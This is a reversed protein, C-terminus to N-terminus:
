IGFATHGWQGNPIYQVSSYARYRYRRDNRIYWWQFPDNSIIQHRQIGYMEPGNVCTKKARPAVSFLDNGIFHAGLWFAPYAPRSYERCRQMKAKETHPPTQKMSLTEMSGPDCIFTIAFVFRSRSGNNPEVHLSSFSLTQENSHSNSRLFMQKAICEYM